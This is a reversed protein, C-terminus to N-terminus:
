AALRRAALRRRGRRKRWWILTGTVALVGPALGACFVVVRGALGFAEGNHLPFQWHLVAEGAPLSRADRVHLVAGSWQDVRVVSDGDSGRVDGPRTLWLRYLATPDPGLDVMTVAGGPIRAVAIAVAEDPTIPAAGPVPRSALGAPVPQVRAVAAVVPRIWDPFVLYLGSGAVVLLLLASWFGVARHVDFNLRRAGKTWEVSVAVRLQWRAPWWLWLGTSVSAILGLGLLGVATEGTDALDLLEGLLLSAHLDYIRATLHAGADRVGLVQASAPDVTVERPGDSGPAPGSLYVRFVPFKADPM